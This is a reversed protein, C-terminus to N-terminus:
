DPDAFNTIPSRNTQTWGRITTPTGRRELRRRAEQEAKRRRDSELKAQRQRDLEARSYKPSGSM